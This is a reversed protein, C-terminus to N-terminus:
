APPAADATPPPGAAAGFPASSQGAGGCASLIARMTRSGLFGTARLGNRRQFRRIASRTAGDLAGSSLNTNLLQNLCNQVQSLSSGSPEDSLGTDQSGDLGGSSGWRRRWYPNRWWRGRGQGGWQGSGGPWQGSGSWQGANAWGATGPWQGTRAL